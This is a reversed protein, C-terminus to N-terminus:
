NTDNKITYLVAPKQDYKFEKQFILHCKKLVNISASNEIYARGVIENIKLTSFAYNVCAKGAETAYGKGWHKKYFRFGLDVENNNNNEYKLGCWGLFENTAKLCVAWRGYGNHKYDPYNEIFLMAEDLSKFAKNGTYKIVEQDNNLHYFHFGDSPVFERLYLRDTELIIKMINICFVFYM